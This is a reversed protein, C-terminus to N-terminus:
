RWRLMGVWVGDNGDALKLRPAGPQAPDYLGVRVGYNAPPLDSLRFSLLQVQGDFWAPNFFLDHQMLAVDTRGAPAFHVFIKESGRLSQTTGQWQLAVEVFEGSSDPFLAAARLTIRGDFTANFPQLEEPTRRGFIKVIWRGTFREEIQTFATSLARTAVRDGDWFSTVDQLFVRAVNERVMEDVQEKASNYDAVRYPMVM